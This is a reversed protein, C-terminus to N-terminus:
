EFLFLAKMLNRKDTDLLRVDMTCFYPIAGSLRKFHQLIACAKFTVPAKLFNDACEFIESGIPSLIAVEHSDPNEFLLGFGYCINTLDDVKKCLAIIDGFICNKNQLLTNNDCKHLWQARAEMDDRSLIDSLYIVALCERLRAATPQAVSRNQIKSVSAINYHDFEIDRLTGCPLNPTYERLFSPTLTVSFNDQRHPSTFQIIHDPKLHYIVMSIIDLGLGKTMGMTNVFWPLSCCQEDNSCFKFLEAVANIYAGLCQMPNADGVFYSRLPQKLHSYNPGILPTNVIVASICGCLTFETQGVDLDIYVVSSTHNLFRNIIYKLYSSKGVGKGGCVITKCTSGKDSQSVFCSLIQSSVQDFEESTNLKGLIRSGDKVDLVCDLLREAEAFMQFGVTKQLNPFLELQHRDLCIQWHNYQEKKSSVCIICGVPRVCELLDKLSDQFAQCHDYDELESEFIHSDETTSLYQASGEKLSFLRLPLRKDDSSSVYGHSMLKGALVNVELIGQFYLSCPYKLGILLTENGCRRIFVNNRPSDIVSSDTRQLPLVDDVSGVIVDNSPRM